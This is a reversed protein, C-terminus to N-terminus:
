RPEDLATWEDITEVVRKAVRDGSIRMGCVAEEVEEVVVVTVVGSTGDARIDLAAPLVASRIAELPGRVPFFCM